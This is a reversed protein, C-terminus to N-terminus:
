INLKFKSFLERQLEIVIKVIENQVTVPMDQFEVGVRCRGSGRSGVMHAHRVICTVKEQLKRGVNLKGILIDDKKFHEKEETLFEFAFGGGSLDVLDYKEITAKKNHLNIQFRADYGQPINIRFSNRRQLKYLDAQMNLHVTSGKGEELVTKLFYKETGLSFTVIVSGKPLGTGTLPAMVLINDILYKPVYKYNEKNETIAHVELLREVLLTYVRERDSRTGVKQFFSQGKM